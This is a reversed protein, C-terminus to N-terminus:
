VGCGHLGIRSPGSKGAAADHWGSIARGLVRNAQASYCFHGAGITWALGKSSKDGNCCNASLKDVKAVLTIGEVHLYHITKEVLLTSNISKM